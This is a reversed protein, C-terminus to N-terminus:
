KNDSNSKKGIYNIVVAKGSHHEGEDLLITKKNFTEIELENFDTYIDELSYLLDVNKPGGTKYKIQEKAYVQLIIKGDSKLAAILKENVTKSIQDPLHVFINVIVGYYNDPLDIKSLDQVTYNINVNNEKALNEAKQKASVSYDFADVNWGLRAAYVANRGEGEGIFLIKGPKLPTLNEKLFENPEKGYVYNKESYREDWFNKMTELGKDPHDSSNQKIIHLCLM